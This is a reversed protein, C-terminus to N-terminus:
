RSRRRHLLLSEALVVVLYLLLAMVVLTLLAVFMLPTDFNGRAVNILFGLGRDAAVFEGVVAGIVSLTVSVKLGGLLMPLASPVELMAFTQWRTAKLSRILAALDPDVSRVGVITNVLMPFFITLACVLVKSLRGTGFWIVLLPALAVIPISQSAVIYPALFRELARSKAMGYGLATAASLGLALGGSIEVLTIRAHRWLLGDVLVLALKRYVDGPGPLIFTPYDGLRVILTWLLLTLLVILPPFLYQSQRRLAGAVREALVVLPMDERGAQRKSLNEKEYQQDIM